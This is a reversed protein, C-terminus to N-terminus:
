KTCSRGIKLGIDAASTYIDVLDGLQSCTLTNFIGSAALCADADDLNENELENICGDACANVHDIPFYNCAVFKNCANQCYAICENPLGGDGDGGGGCGALGAVLVVALLFLGVKKM